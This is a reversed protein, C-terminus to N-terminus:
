GKRAAAAADAAAKAADAAAIKDILDYYTKVNAEAKKIYDRLFSQEDVHHTKEDTLKAIEAKVADIDKKLRDVQDRFRKREDFTRQRRDEAELRAKKKGEEVLEKEEREKKRKEQAEVAAKIAQERAAIDRKAKLKREEEVKAKAEAIRAEYTKTFNLYFGGFVLVGVLPILIYIKNM